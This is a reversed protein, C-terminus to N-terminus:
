HKQLAQKLRAAKAQLREKQKAIDVVFRVHKAKGVLDLEDRIEVDFSVRRGEIATVTISIAVWMDLLTPGLHDIAVHAGVSSQEAPLHDLLFENCVNELDLVMSPTAYVRLDEGMFGITRPKEIRIRRTHKTGVVLEKKM